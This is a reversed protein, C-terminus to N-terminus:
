DTHQLSITPAFLLKPFHSVSKYTSPFGLVHPESAGKELPASTLHKRFAYFIHQSPAHLDYSDSLYFLHHRGSYSRVHICASVSSGQSIREALCNPTANMSKHHAHKLVHSRENREHTSASSVSELANAETNKSHCFSYQTCYATMQCFHKIRTTRAM